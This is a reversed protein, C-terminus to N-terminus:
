GTHHPTLCCREAGAGGGLVLAKPKPRQGTISCGPREKDQLGRYAERCTWGGLAWTETVAAAVWGDVGPEQVSCIFEM